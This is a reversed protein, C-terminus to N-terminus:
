GGLKEVPSSRRTKSASVWWSVYVFARVCAYVDRVSDSNDTEQSFQWFDTRLLSRMPYIIFVEHGHKYTSTLVDSCNAEHTMCLEYQLQRVSKQIVPMFSDPKSSGFQECLVALTTSELSSETSFLPQCSITCNSGEQLSTRAIEFWLVFLM